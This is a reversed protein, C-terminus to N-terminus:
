QGRALRLFRFGYGLLPSLVLGGAILGLNVLVAEASPPLLIWYGKGQTILSFSSVCFPILHFRFLKWGGLETLRQGPNLANATLIGGVVLAIGGATLWDEPPAGGARIVEALYWILAGRMLHRPWNGHREEVVPKM